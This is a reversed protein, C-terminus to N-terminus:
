KSAADVFSPWKGASKGGEPDQGSIKKSDKKGITKELAEFKTLTEKTNEDVIKEFEDLKKTVDKLGAKVAKEVAEKVIEASPGSTNEVQKTVKDGLESVLTKIGELAKTLPECAAKIAKEVLAKIEKEDMNDEHKPSAKPELHLGLAEAIRNIVADSPNIEGASIKILVEKDIGSKEAVVDASIKEDKLMLRASKKLWSIRRGERMRSHKLEIFDEDIAGHDVLSVEGVDITHLHFIETQKEGSDKSGIVLGKVNDHIGRFGISFGNIKGAKVAEWTQDHTIKVTMVWTGVPLEKGIASTGPERLIHSEVMAGIGDFIQHQRGIKRADEVFRHAAKEIDEAFEFDGQLDVVNPVLVPGTVLRKSEDIKIFSQLGYKEPASSQTRRVCINGDRRFGSPCTGDPNLPRTHQAAEDDVPEESEEKLRGVVASVGTTITITRFSGERFGGPDRQRFRFSDETEDVKDAKFGNDLVWERAQVLTEFREKSLVLTQVTTVEQKGGGKLYADMDFVGLLIQAILGREDACKYCSGGMIGLKPASGGELKCLRCFNNM